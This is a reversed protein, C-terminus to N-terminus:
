GHAGKDFGTLYVVVERRNESAVRALAFVQVEDSLPITARTLPFTILPHVSASSRRRLDVVLENSLAAAAEPDPLSLLWEVFDCRDVLSIEIDDEGNVDPM